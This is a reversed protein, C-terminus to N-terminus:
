NGWFSVVEFQNMAPQDHHYNSRLFVGELPPSSWGALNLEHNM